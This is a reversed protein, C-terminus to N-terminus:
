ASEKISPQIGGEQESLRLLDPIEGAPVPRSFLFGQIEDCGQKRLFALQAETEVGEAVVKMGLSHAMSIIANAIAEDDPDVHLGRIFSRDIKIADIPFRKLYSLSSYGTGFDDMIFHLGMKNLKQMARVTVESEEMIASETIELKLYQPELGSETLANEIIKMITLRQFQKSSINVSVPMKPLGGLQWERNQVCATHVVWEGIPGILGREEALPIFDAPSVMGLEPSLWRILAELGVIRGTGAEVQPQYYLQFESRNLAKRLHNELTMKEFASDHMSKKYYQYNNKGQEKAHYMATDANQLLTDMDDGDHPFIAIGISASVYIEEKGLTVPESLLQLIRKAVAAADESQEIETLLITFEDGGQRSLVNEIENRSITDSDRLSKQVLLSVRKLLWDGVHHGLSDNVQKFNDLDLFLVAIIRDYRGGLKLAQDVRDRFLDRNPLGTLSDYYALYKIKEEARKRETIDKAVCVIGQVSGSDDHMVSTSFLVPVRTGNRAFYGENLKFFGDQEEADEEAEPYDPVIDELAMGILHEEECALLDTAAKNVKTIIGAPDMVLLPDMMSGLINDVYSKSVVTKSLDETMRNFAEGLTGIEDRAAINVRHSLDGKGIKEIGAILPHLPKNIFLRICWFAVITSIIILVVVM